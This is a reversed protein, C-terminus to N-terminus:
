VNNPTNQTNLSNKEIGKLGSDVNETAFRNQLKSLNTRLLIVDTLAKM